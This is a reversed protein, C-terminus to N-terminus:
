RNDRWRQYSLWWFVVTVYPILLAMYVLWWCAVFILVLSLWAVQGNCHLACHDNLQWFLSLLGFALPVALVSLLVIGAIFCRLGPVKPDPGFQSERNKM